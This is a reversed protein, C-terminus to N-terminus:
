YVLALVVMLIITFGALWGVTQMFLTVAEKKKGDLYLMLPKGVILSGVVATSLTFLSLFAIPALFDSMSGFLKDGNAMIQSVVAIYILTGLANYLSTKSLKNM